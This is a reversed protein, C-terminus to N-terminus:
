LIIILLNFLSKGYDHWQMNGCTSMKITIGAYNYLGVCLIERLSFNYPIDCCYIGTVSTNGTTRLDVRQAERRQFIGNGLHFTLRDGNPFFWNGAIEDYNLRCCRGFQTHCQVSNGGSSNHGVLSFDVYSNNSLNEGLFSLYTQCHVEVVLLFLFSWLVVLIMDDVM